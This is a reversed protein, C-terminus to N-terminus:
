DGIYVVNLIGITDRLTMHNLELFKQDYKNQSKEYDKYLKKMAAM